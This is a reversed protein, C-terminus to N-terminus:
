RNRNRREKLDIVVVSINDGSGRGLALKTLLAAAAAVPTDETIGKSRHPRYGALCKRAVECVIDNSLVDWLGDSALVLCEDEETREICTVEPESIVYRKLYRDGIARSMALFGGVRYGNWFIVRGGAAEIRGMEDEREPKHDNSLPIAKGGRSLVARSDGCNAVVVQTLSVIAIVATSGVNEPAIPEQCCDSNRELEGSGCSGKPCLGGVEIDMKMFCASMVKNWDTLDRSIAYSNRLEEALALHFRDKCFISAQSGGHGDYVAFFHLPTLPPAAFVNQSSQLVSTTASKALSFFSPIASVADEMERRGGIISMIGHPPCSDKLLLSISESNARNISKSARNLPITKEDSPQQQQKPEQAIISSTSFPKENESDDPLKQSDALEEMESVPKSLETEQQCCDQDMPEACGTNNDNNNNSNTENVASNNITNEKVSTEKTWYKEVNCTCFLGGKWRPSPTSVSRVLRRSPYLAQSHLSAEVDMATECDGDALTGDEGLCTNCLPGSRTRSRKKITDALNGCNSMMKLRRIETRRRRAAMAPTEELFSCSNVYADALAMAEMSTLETM